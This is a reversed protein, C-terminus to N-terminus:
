NYMSEIVDAYKDNVIRRKLKQTETLEGGTVSFEVPLIEFKKVTQANSTAKKNAAAIGEEIAKRFAADKAAEAVTTASSGLEKLKALTEGTLRDTPEGDDLEVQLTIVCSLFKRKDGIVMVNSIFPTALCIQDEILVPPINEGGATIILEKLRGTIFLFGDDDVHGIDGSHLWGDKDLTSETAEPNHLYGMFIHRGRYCIEGDGNSDPDRIVLETGHMSPGCSGTRNQGKRSVTQPGTCESQGFLEFITMGLSGFYELTSRHIPAAGTAIHRCRDLGLAARVKSFVLTNALFFGWPAAAGEQENYYNTLGVSKASSAILKRVASSNAGLAKMKEEIKEFVRPVGLFLTPRIARLSEGLSGRLADPRAFSVTGGVMYPMHIDVMQAAIHSLPLYSIIHEEGDVATAFWDTAARSTWTVNDHSIMVAKPNGTTGSTYILTSCHGPKIGKIRKELEDQYKDEGLELFQAWSYVGDGTKGSWEPDYVVIAKLDPLGARVSLVKDLQKQNEVVCAFSKSHELVYKTAEPGNTTYIGAAIGGAFIAALDAVFWEPSNFGIVSVVRHREFGLSILARAVRQVSDHYEAYTTDQWGGGREVRMAAHRPFRDVTARFVAPVTTPALSAPHEAGVTIDACADPRTHGHM